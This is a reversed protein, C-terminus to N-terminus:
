QMVMGGDVIIVQGTVYSAMDSVLFLAVSAVEEPQGWRGLPINRLMKEKIEPPLEETMRTAIFGPAVANVTINWPALERAASKTLGILGAKSASYNSQGANGIIGIISSVNVIRGYKQKMMTKAVAKTWNFAGTLNTSIVAEWDSHKMRLILADRTIGANNVLIDIHGLKDLCYKTKESIAGFDGADATIAVASAGQSQLEGATEEAKEANIDSIIVDAGQGAFSFAISRGIGQAGGTVLVVKDKLM